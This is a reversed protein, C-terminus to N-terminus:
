VKLPISPSKWLELAGEPCPDNTLFYKVELYNDLLLNM